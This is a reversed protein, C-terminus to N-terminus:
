IFDLGSNVHILARSRYMLRIDQSLMLNFAEENNANVALYLLDLPASYPNSLKNLQSEISFMDVLYPKGEVKIYSEAISNVKNIFDPHTELIKKLTANNQDRIAECASKFIACAEERLKINADQNAATTHTADESHMQMDAHRNCSVILQSAIVVPAISLSPFYKKNKNHKSM